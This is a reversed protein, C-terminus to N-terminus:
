SRERARAAGAAATLNVSLETSSVLTPPTSVTVGNSPLIRVESANQFNVGRVALPTTAGIQILVPNISEIRPLPPTIRFLATEPIAFPISQTGARAEISRLTQPADAAIQLNVTVTRGDAAAAPSGVTVGSPPVLAVSSVGQLGSGTLTLQVTEGITGTAPSRDTLVAGVTVGLANSTLGVVSISATPSTTKEVGVNAAAIPTFVGQVASVVRLTNASTAEAASTGGPTTVTITRNGPPASSAVGVVTTLM